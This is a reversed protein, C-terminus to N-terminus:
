RATHQFSNENIFLDHKAKTMSYGSRISPFSDGFPYPMRESIHANPREVTSIKWNERRIKRENNGLHFDSIILM